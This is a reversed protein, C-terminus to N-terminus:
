SEMRGLAMRRRRQGDTECDNWKAPAAYEAELKAHHRAEEPLVPEERLPLSLGFRREFDARQAPITM